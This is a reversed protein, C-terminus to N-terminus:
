IILPSRKMCSCISLCSFNDFVQNSFTCVFVIDISITICWVIVSRTFFNFFEQFLNFIKTLLIFRFRLLNCNQKMLNLAIIFNRMSSTDSLNILLKPSWNKQIISTLCAKYQDKCSFMTPSSKSVKMLLTNLHSSDRTGM